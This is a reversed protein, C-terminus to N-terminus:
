EPPPMLIQVVKGSFQMATAKLRNLEDQSYAAMIELM